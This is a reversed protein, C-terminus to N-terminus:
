PASPSGQQSDVSSPGEQSQGPKATEANKAKTAEQTKAAEAAAEKEMRVLPDDIFNNRITVWGVLSLLFVIGVLHTIAEFKPNPRQRTVTEYALFFLRGGDLAPFPLLNFAGLAISLIVLLKIFEMWGSTTKTDLSKGLFRVMTIPDAIDETTKRSFADAIGQIQLKTWLVPYGLSYTLAEGAPLGPAAEIGGIAVGIVGIGNKEEPTITLPMEKGNREIVFNTAVGPRAKCVDILDTTRKIPTDAARVFMDGPEIGASAAPSGEMVGTVGVRPSVALSFFFMIIVALLYNAAPGAFVTAARAFLSQNCYLARDNEDNDEFPNMGAIMVYALFPIAGVQFITPSNKPQYKFITPGFGISFRLVRMGFARAVLYHGGEHAIVLISLGAVGLLINVVQDM